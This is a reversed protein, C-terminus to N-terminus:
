YVWVDCSGTGSFRIAIITDSFGEASVSLVAGSAQLNLPLYGNPTRGLGHEANVSGAGTRSLGTLLKGNRLFAPLEEFIKDELDRLAGATAESQLADTEEGYHAARSM